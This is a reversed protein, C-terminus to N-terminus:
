GEVPHTLLFMAIKSSYESAAAEMKTLRDWYDKHRKSGPKTRRLATGLAGIAQGHTRLETLAQLLEAREAATM